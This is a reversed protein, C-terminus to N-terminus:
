RSPGREIAELWRNEFAPGDVDVVVGVSKGDQAPAFSLVDVDLRPRLRRAMVPAGSWGLAVACALPDHQFNLLDDPLAPHARGLARVDHEDAHARAQRALLRGITGAAELRALHADRLHAQTTAALTVLTLDDTADFVVRAADTDCQVNWDRSAPWAPFGAPPPEVWGGMVVVRANALARPRASELSALNTFPGIAVITAGDDIAGTLLEIPDRVAGLPSV